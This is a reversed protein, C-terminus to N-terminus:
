GKGGSAGGGMVLTSFYRCCGVLYSTWPSIKTSTKGRRYNNKDIKLDRPCGVVEFEGYVGFFRFLGM